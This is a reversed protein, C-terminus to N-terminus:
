SPTGELDLELGLEALLPALRELELRADLELLAELEQDDPDVIM